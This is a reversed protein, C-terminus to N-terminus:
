EEAIAALVAGGYDALKKPGIGPISRLAEISAPKRAALEKLVSDHFICFAAIGRQKAVGSRWVRLRKFCAEFDAVSQHGIGAETAVALSNTRGSKREKSGGIAHDESLKPPPTPHLNVLEQGTETLKLVPRPFGNGVDQQRLHGARIMWQFAAEIEDGRTGRLAGFCRFRSNARVQETKGPIGRLVDAVVGRGRAAKAEEMEKVAHLIHMQMVMPPEEIRRPQFAPTGAARPSRREAECVDCRCDRIEASDGFYELIQRRRCSPKSAYDVMKWLKTTAHQRLTELTVADLQPNNEGMKEIFFEQTRRDRALYLLRCEAPAGDRGARGAEQYYAEVSGPLNCHLVFRLDPKNIGMGFANTAVAVAESAKMFLNQSNQREPLEMGAHYGVVVKGPLREQLLACVAETKKRTSCYVIGSGAHSKVFGVLAADKAADSEFYQCTYKLNPRDFGTVHVRPTRLALREVIDKRVQPTATATVAFCIPSGMAARAEALRMYDPRFDHGWSSICHAEDIVFLQPRLRQVQAQFLPSAFREPAIYLLGRFGTALQRAIARQEQPPQTSNLVLAPIGLQKLQRAQDAMLSILPSVVITLGGRVVAPLQFCLSKGAGTPMVCLTDHGALVDDIIERQRPRFDILRFNERLSQLLPDM